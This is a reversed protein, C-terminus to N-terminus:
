KIEEFDLYDSESPTKTRPQQQEHINSSAQQQQRMNAQQAEQM